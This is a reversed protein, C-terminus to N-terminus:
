FFFSLFFKVVIQYEAPCLLDSWGARTRLYQTYYPSLPVVNSHYLHIHVISHHPKERGASGSKTLATCAPFGTGQSRGHASCPLPKSLVSWFRTWNWPKRFPIMAIRQVKGIPSKEVVNWGLWRCFSRFLHILACTSYTTQKIRWSQWRGNCSDM